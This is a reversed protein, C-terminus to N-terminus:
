KRAPAMSELVQRRDELEDLMKSAKFDKGKTLCNIILEGDDLDIEGTAMGENIMAINTEYDELKAITIFDSISKRMFREAKQRPYMRELVFQTSFQDGELAREMVKHRLLTINEEGFIKAFEEVASLRKPGPNEKTYRRGRPIPKYAIGAAKAAKLLKDTLTTAQVSKVNKADKLTSDEPKSPIARKEVARADGKTVKKVSKIAKKVMM